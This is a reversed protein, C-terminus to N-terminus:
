KRQFGALALAFLGLGLLTVHTEITAVNLHSQL